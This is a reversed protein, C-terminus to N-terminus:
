NAKAEKLKERIHTMEVAIAKARDLADNPVEDSVDLLKWIELQKTVAMVTEEGETTDELLWTTLAQVCDQATKLKAETLIKPEDKLRGSALLAEWKRCVEELKSKEKLLQGTRRQCYFCYCHYLCHYYCYCYSCFIILIIVFLARCGQTLPALLEQLDSWKQNEHKVVVAKSSAAKSEKEESCTETKQESKVHHQHTMWQRCRDICYRKLGLDKYAAELSNSVDWDDDCDLKELILGLNPDDVPINLLKAIDYRGYIAHNLKVIFVHIFCFL